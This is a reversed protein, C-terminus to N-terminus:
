AADAPLIEFAPARTVPRLARFHREDFTAIATTEYRGALVVLSSDALSVGSDAHREAVDLIEQPASAWWEVAYAGAAVDRRFAARAARGARADALHDVEALVLPTTALEDVGRYWDVAAAHRGDRRDLLAYLFSTDVVIV